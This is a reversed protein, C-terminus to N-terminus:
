AEFETWRNRPYGLETFDASPPFRRGLSRRRLSRVQVCVAEFLVLAIVVYVTVSSGDGSVFMQQVQQM